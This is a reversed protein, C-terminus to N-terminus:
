EGQEGEEDPELVLQTGKGAFYVEFYGLHLLRALASRGEAPLTAAEGRWAWIVDGGGGHAIDTALKNPIRHVIAKVKCNRNGVNANKAAEHLTDGKGWYGASTAIFYTYESSM